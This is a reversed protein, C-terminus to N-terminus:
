HTWQGIRSVKFNDSYSLTKPGAEKPEFLRHDIGNREAFAIAEDATDFWLRVQQRTESTSTWGMLPEVTRPEQPDYELLWLKTKGPGSQMASRAPKYIKATM